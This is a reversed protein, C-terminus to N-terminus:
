VCNASYSAPAAELRMRASATVEKPPGLNLLPIWTFTFRVDVKVPAGTSGEPTIQVCMTSRMEDTSAQQKLYNQICSGGPSGTPCRNVAAFRAGESALHNADLWYNLMRGFDLIAMLTVFLPLAILAFEVAAAGREEGFRFCRRVPKSVIPKARLLKM